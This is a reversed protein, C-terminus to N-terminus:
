IISKGTDKSGHGCGVVFGGITQGSSPGRGGLPGLAPRIRLDLGIRAEGAHLLLHEREPFALADELARDLEARGQAVALRVLEDEVVARGEGVPQRVVAVEDGAEDLVDHRPVLRHAASPDLPAEAPVAVAKGGLQM